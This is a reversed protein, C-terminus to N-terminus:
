FHVFLQTKEKGKTLSLTFLFILCNKNIIEFCAFIVLALITACQSYTNSIDIVRSYEVTAWGNKIERAAKAIFPFM